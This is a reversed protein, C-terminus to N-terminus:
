DEEEVWVIFAVEDNMGIVGGDFTAQSIGNWGFANSRAYEHWHGNSFFRAQPGLREIGNAFVEAAEAPAFHGNPMVMNDVAFFSLAERAEAATLDFFANPAEVIYGVMRAVANAEGGDSVYPMGGFWSRFAGYGERGRAVEVLIASVREWGM